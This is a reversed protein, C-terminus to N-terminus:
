RSRRALAIGVALAVIPVAAGLPTRKAPEPEREPGGEAALTAAGDADPSPSADAVHAAHEGGHSMGLEYSGTGVAEDCVIWRGNGDLGADEGLFFPIAPRLDASLAVFDRVTTDNMDVHPFLAKAFTVSITATPEDFSGEAPEFGEALEATAMGTSFEWGESLVASYVAVIGWTTGQHAFQVAYGAGEAVEGEWGALQLHVDFSETTEGDIWASIVDLYIDGYPVACDGSADTLEPLEASGASALQAVGLLLLSFVIAFALLALLTRM